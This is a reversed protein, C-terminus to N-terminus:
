INYFVQRNLCLLGLDAQESLLLRIQDHNVSNAMRYNLFYILVPLSKNSLIDSASPLNPWIKKRLQNVPFKKLSLTPPRYSFFSQFYGTSQDNESSKKKKKLIELVFLLVILYVLLRYWIKLYKMIKRCLVIVKLLPVRSFVCVSGWFYLFFIWPFLYYKLDTSLIFFIIKSILKKEVKRFIVAPPKTLWSIM